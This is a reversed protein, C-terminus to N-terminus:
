AQVLFAAAPVDEVGQLIALPRQYGQLSDSDITADLTGGGAEVEVHGVHIGVSVLRDLARIYEWQLCVRDEGLELRLDVVSNDLGLNNVLLSGLLSVLVGYSGAISRDHGLARCVLGLRQRDLQTIQQGVLLRDEAESQDALKFYDSTAVAEGQGEGEVRVITPM